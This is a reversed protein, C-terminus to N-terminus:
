RVRIVESRALTKAFSRSMDTTSAAVTVYVTPPTRDSCVTTCAHVTSGCLCARTVSISAGAPRSDWAERVVTATNADDTGGDRVYTAGAHVAARLKLMATAPEWALMLGILIAGFLPVLVAFEVAAGGRRDVLWAHFTRM